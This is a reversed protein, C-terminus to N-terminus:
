DELVVVQAVGQISAGVGRVWYNEDADTDFVFLRSLYTKEELSEPGFFTGTGNKV